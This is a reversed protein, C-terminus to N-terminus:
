DLFDLCCFLGSPQRAEERKTQSKAMRRLKDEFAAESEDANVENAAQKFRASQSTEEKKHPM